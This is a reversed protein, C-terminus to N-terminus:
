RTKIIKEKAAEESAIAVSHFAEKISLVTKKANTINKKPMDLRKVNLNNHTVRNEEGAQDVIAHVGDIIGKNFDNRQFEPVIIDIIQKAEDNTLADTLGYGVEIRLRRDSKAIVLLVGKDDNSTGIEWYEFLMASYTDIDEPATSSITAVAVQVTTKEDFTKLLTELYEESQLDLIEATDTVYGDAEPYDASRATDPLLLLAAFLTAFVLRRM